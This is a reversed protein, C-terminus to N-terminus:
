PSPVVSLEIATPASSSRYIRETAEKFDSPKADPIDVFTQPNRDVLPFWSSQIQVMLRHGKEFCHYVDPMDFRIPTVQGPTFPEPTEFSNRFKGRFPEGRLLQEYGDPHVDILKVVFDSDTGSTSVYLLPRVPGAITLDETLADTRYTLVDPRNQVFRQDAVMYEKPTQLVQKASFPVPHAPDSVYQDFAAPETPKDFSLHKGERLYIAQRVALKPPWESETRWVNKGTEFVYAYPLDPDPGGKLYHLFFPLEIRDRFFEGTASGFSLDGMKSGASEAWGGHWWPGMVLHVNTGPSQSGIARFTKLTGSLDEADFWGGVVLVAPTIRNLHPLLNRSKWYEDYTAHTKVDRWYANGNLNGLTGRELYFAYGDNTGYDFPKTPEPLTPNHQPGFDTYFSFNSLLFLAGNHYADDGHYLDAMPAQPSAAVLAPHANILGASTYFGPYSIGRLGAKGNNDPVNHLLWEITDYTDTSEDVDKSGETVDKEPREEVFEGESMYRGRVDQFVLIFGSEALKGAFKPFKGPGYYGVSYPTRTMLFPYRQTTEKPAYIATFLRVGDRMPIRVEQKTYHESFTFERAAGSGREFVILLVLVLVRSFSM